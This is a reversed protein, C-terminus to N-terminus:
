GVGVGNDLKRSAVTRKAPLINQREGEAGDLRKWDKKWDLNRRAEV